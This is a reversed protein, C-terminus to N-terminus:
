EYCWFMEVYFFQVIKVYIFQTRKGKNNNTMNRLKTYCFNSEWSQFCYILMDYCVCIPSFTDFAHEVFSLITANNANDQSCMFGIGVKTQGFWFLHRQFISCVIHCRWRYFFCLIFPISYQKNNFLASFLFWVLVDVVAVSVVLVVLLLLISLFPRPLPVGWYGFGFLYGFHFFLRLICWIHLIHTTHM